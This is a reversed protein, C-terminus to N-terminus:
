VRVPSLDLNVISSPEAGACTEDPWVQVRGNIFVIYGARVNKAALEGSLVIVTRALGPFEYDLDAPLSHDQAMAMLVAVRDHNTFLALGFLKYLRGEARWKAREAQWAEQERPDWEYVFKGDPGEALNGM